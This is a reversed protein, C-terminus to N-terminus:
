TSASPKFFSFMNPQQQRTSIKRKKTTIGLLENTSTQIGTGGTGIETVEMKEEKTVCKEEKTVRKDNKEDKDDKQKQRTCQNEELQNYFEIAAPDTLIKTEDFSQLHLGNLTRVRSLAVYAQGEGFIDSGADVYAHDFTAGQSKHITIAWSLLLPFQNIGFHSILTKPANNQFCHHEIKENYSPPDKDFHVEIYPNMSKGEGDNDGNCIDVVTGLSGNTLPQLGSITKEQRYNNLMYMVKAGKRVQLTKPPALIGYLTYMINPYRSVLFTKTCEQHNTLHSNAKQFASWEDCYKCKCKSGDKGEESISSCRVFSFYADFDHIPYESSLQNLRDENYTNVSRKIPMLYPVHINSPPPQYNPSGVVRTKLLQITSESLSGYRIDTLVTAYNQDSAQRFSFHLIISQGPLPFLENWVKSTFAYAKSLELDKPINQVDTESMQHQEYQRIDDGCPRLQCFDGM